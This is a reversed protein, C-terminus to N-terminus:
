NSYVAEARTTMEEMLKITAKAAQSDSSGLDAANTVVFITTNINPQIVPLAFWMTNSGLHSLKGEELGWGLAYDNNPAVSHLKEFLEASLYQGDYSANTGALHISQYNVMDTLSTHETGAPGLIKPNDTPVSGSGVVSNWGSGSQSHGVPQELNDNKDPAGVCAGVMALPEFVNNKILVELSTGTLREMMAGAVIYGLNTYNFTGVLNNPMLETVVQQGQSIIEDKNSFYESFTPMQEPLGSTHSLLQEITVLQYHQQMSNELELYVDVITTGWQIVCQQVLKAALTATMSKTISGVHWKDDTTVAIDSDISRTGDVAMEIIEGDHVVVDALAPLNSESYYYSVLESLREDGTQGAEPATVGITPTPTLIPTESSKSSGGGGCATLAVLPVLCVISM